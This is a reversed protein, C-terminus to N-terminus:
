LVFPIILIESSKASLVSQPYARLSRCMKFIIKGVDPDLPAHYPTKPEDIKTPCLEQKIKDNMALNREDWM